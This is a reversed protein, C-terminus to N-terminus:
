QIEMMVDRVMVIPQPFAPLLASLLPQTYRYTIRVNLRDGSCPNSAALPCTDSPNGDTLTPVVDSTVVFSSANIPLYGLASLDDSTSSTGKNDYIAKQVTEDLTYNTDFRTMRYLSGARAGERSANSVQIYAYFMFGSIAIGFVLMLLIPLLLAIEVASQGQERGHESQLHQKQEIKM